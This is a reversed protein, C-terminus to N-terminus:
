LRLYGFGVPETEQLLMLDLKQQHKAYPHNNLKLIAVM